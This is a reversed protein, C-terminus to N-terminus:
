LWYSLRRRYATYFFLAVGWGAAAMGIAALWNLASPAHGLLPGRVIEVLHYFPNLDLVLARGPLMSPKWMVPTIFFLVQVISAVIMPIDRFRASLLGLLLVMWLGNLVVLLLGPISLLATWGPNIRFWLAVVLFIVINHVFVLANSWVVRYVHISLPAALQHILYQGSIFANAGENVLTSILGWIIFGAALFPLYDAVEIKFIQSYVLGLAAVMIGMSLTIWFPGLISRRYRQRIDQLGLTVWLVRRRWGNRLDALALRFQHPDTGARFRTALWSSSQPANAVSM